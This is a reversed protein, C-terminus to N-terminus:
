ANKDHHTERELICTGRMLSLKGRRANRLLCDVERYRVGLSGIVMVEWCRVLEWEWWPCRLM